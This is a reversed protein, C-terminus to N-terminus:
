HSLYIKMRFLVLLSGSSITVVKLFNAILLLKELYPPLCRAEDTDNAPKRMYWRDHVADMSSTVKYILLPISLEIPVYLVVAVVVLWELANM